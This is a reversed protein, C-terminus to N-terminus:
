LPPSDAKTGIGGTDVSPADEPPYRYQTIGLSFKVDPHLEVPHFSGLDSAETSHVVLQYDLAEDVLDADEHLRYRGPTYPDSLQHILHLVYPDPGLGHAHLLQNLRQRAAHDLTRPAVDLTLTDGTNTLRTGGGPRVRTTLQDAAARVRDTSWDLVAAIESLHLPQGLAASLVAHVCATDPREHPAAPAPWTPPTTLWDPWPLDLREALTRLLAGPLHNLAEPGPLARIRAAPIGLLDALEESTLGHDRARTLLDAGFTVPQTM